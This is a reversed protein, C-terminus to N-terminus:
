LWVWGGLNRGTKAISIGVTSISFKLAEFCIKLFWHIIYHYHYYRQYHMCLRLYQEVSVSHKNQCSIVISGNTDGVQRLVGTLCIQLLEESWKAWDWPDIQGLVLVGSLRLDTIFRANSKIFHWSCNRLLGRELINYSTSQSFNLKRNKLLYVFMNDM